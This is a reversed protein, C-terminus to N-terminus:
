AILLEIPEEVLQSPWSYDRALFFFVATWHPWIWGLWIFLILTRYNFNYQERSLFIFIIIDIKNYLNKKDTFHPQSKLNKLYFSSTNFYNWGKVSRDLNLHLNTIIWYNKKYQIIQSLLFFISQWSKSKGKIPFFYSYNNSHNQNAEVQSNFLYHTFLCIHPPPPPFM